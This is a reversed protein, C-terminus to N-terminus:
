TDCHEGMSPGHQSKGGGGGALSMWHCQLSRATGSCMTAEWGRVVCPSCTGLCTPCLMAYLVDLIFKCPFVCMKVYLPVIFALGGNCTLILFSHIKVM